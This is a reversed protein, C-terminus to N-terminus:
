QQAESINRITAERVDSDASVLLEDIIKNFDLALTAQKAIDEAFESVMSDKVKNIYMEIRDVAELDVNLKHREINIMIENLEFYWASPDYEKEAVSTRVIPGTNLWMRGDHNTYVFAKHNDGTIILKAHKYKDTNILYAVDYKNGEYGKIPDSLYCMRHEVIVPCTNFVEEAGFDYGCVNDLCIGSLMKVKTLSLPSRNFLSINHNPLEHNGAVVYADVNDLVANVENVLDFGINWKDYFDGAIFLPCDKKHCLDVIQQLKEIQTKRINDKRCIPAKECLHVDGIAIGKLIM